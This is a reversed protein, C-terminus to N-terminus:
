GQPIQIGGVTFHILQQPKWSKSGNRQEGERNEDSEKNRQKMNYMQKSYM